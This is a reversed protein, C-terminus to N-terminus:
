AAEGRKQKARAAERLRTNQAELHEIRRRMQEYEQSAVFVGGAGEASKRARTRQRELAADDGPASASAAAQAGAPHGAGVTAVGVAGPDSGGPGGDITETCIEIPCDWGDCCRYKGRLPGHFFAAHTLGCREPSPRTSGSSGAGCDCLAALKGLDAATAIKTFGETSTAKETQVAGYGRLMAHLYDLVRGMTMQSLALQRGNRAIRRALTANARLRRITPVIDAVTKAIAIHKGDQLLPMFFENWPQRVHVVVSGCLLLSKLRNSYGYGAISILYKYNCMATFPQPPDKGAKAAATPTFFRPAVNRVKIVGQAAATASLQRLQARYPGSDLGGSFYALDTRNHFPTRAGAEAVEPALKCWPKTHTHWGPWSFEPLPLSTRGADHGNTMLPIFQGSGPPWGRWPTPDRDNHVYVMDVGEVLRMRSGYRRLALLLLRLVNTREAWHPQMSLMKVYLEGNVVRARWGGAVDWKSANRAWWEANDIDFPTIGHQRWRPLYQLLPLATIDPALARPM